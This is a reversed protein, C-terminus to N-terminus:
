TYAFIRLDSFCFVFGHFMEPKWYKSLPDLLSLLMQGWLHNKEDVNSITQGVYLFSFTFETFSLTEESSIEITSVGQSLINSKLDKKGEREVGQGKQAPQGPQTAPITTM